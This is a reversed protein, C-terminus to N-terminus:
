PRYVLALDRHVDCRPPDQEDYDLAFVPSHPCGPRPCHLELMAYGTAHGPLLAGDGAGIGRDASRVFDFADHRELYGAPEGEIVVHIAERAPDAGFYGVITEIALAIARDDDLHVTAVQADAALDLDHCQDRIDDLSTM